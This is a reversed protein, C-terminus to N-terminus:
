EGSLKRLYQEPESFKDPNDRMYKLYKDPNERVYKIHLERLERPGDIDDLGEYRWEGTEIYHKHLAEIEANQKAIKKNASKLDSEGSKRLLWGIM